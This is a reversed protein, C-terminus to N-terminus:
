ATVLTQDFEASNQFVDFVSDMSTLELLMRLQENLSCLALKADQKRVMKLTMVLGGLGSSDMFEVNQCDILIYKIGASVFDGIERRLENAQLSDLIGSPQIVKVESNM